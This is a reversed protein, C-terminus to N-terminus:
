EDSRSRVALVGMNAATSPLLHTGGNTFNFIWASSGKTEGSWIWFSTAKLLPTMNRNGAGKKYLGKLEDITPMRWDGELSQVWFRAENWNTNRRRDPGAKWELGTSTDEVIGNSYLVYVGDSEIDTKQDQVQKQSRVAFARTFTSSDCSAGMLKGGKFRFDLFMAPSAKRKEGSWVRCGSIKLLPTMNWDGKGKEYLTKLEDTTPMRWDGGLSKVWSRAERCNMDRDPGAKWELGTSTDKVVGSTYLQYVGDTKVVDGINGAWVGTVSFYFVITTLLAKLHRM